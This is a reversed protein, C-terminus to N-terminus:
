KDNSDEAGRKKWDREDGKAFILALAAFFLAGITGGGWAERLDATQILRLPMLTLIGLVWFVAFLPWPRAYKTFPLKAIGFCALLYLITIPISIWNAADKAPAARKEHEPDELYFWADLFRADSVPVPALAYDTGIPVLEHEYQCQPQGGIRVIVSEASEKWQGVCEFSDNAEKVTLHAIHADKLDFLNLTRRQDASIWDGLVQQVM